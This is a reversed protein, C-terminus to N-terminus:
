MPGKAPDPFGRVLTVVTGGYRKTKLVEWGGGVPPERGSELVVLDASLRDLLDHWADFSYPPDCLAVDFRDGRHSGLWRLVDSRVVRFRGHEETEELGTSALNARITRIADVDREVFTVSTAGQSLAEIGLAGTGAFLDVVTAGEIPRRSRVM